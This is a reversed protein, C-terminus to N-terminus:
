ATLDVLEGKGMERSVTVNVGAAAKMIKEAMQTMKINSITMTKNLADIMQASRAISVPDM